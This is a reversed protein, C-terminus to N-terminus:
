VVTRKKRDTWKCIIYGVAVWFIPGKVTNLADQGMQKLSKEQGVVEPTSNVDSM